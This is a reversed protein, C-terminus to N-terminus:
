GVREVLMAVGQGGGVACTAIGRRGGDARVLQSFLRVLLMAGSAGWPHGRAIAGGQRCVLAADVGLPDLGWARTCALVQAAFAEVIELSDIDPWGLEHDGLLRDVAPVPGIGPLAPDVGATRWGRLALGPVGLQARVREPVIAVAAAGDSVGCSNGATVSGGPSFSGPFRALVDVRLRRPRDDQGLGAVPVIEAAEAGSEISALALEHSRVAYEDQEDRGIGAHDALHQAAPGMDPDAFGPPAFPARTYPRGGLSTVPQTSASEAGGAFVLDASGSAIQSAALQIAAQGSGCQRDITAGPVSVGLGAALAAGRALNGGPGRCNGLLVDDVTWRLEDLNSGAGLGASGQGALGLGALDQGTLDLGALGLGALDAALARLPNAALTVVDVDALGRGITGVPTRRAAIVVPTRDSQPSTPRSM